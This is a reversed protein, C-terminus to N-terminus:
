VELLAAGGEGEPGVAGGVVDEGAFAGVCEGDSDDVRVARMPEVDSDIGIGRRALVENAAVEGDLADDRLGARERM